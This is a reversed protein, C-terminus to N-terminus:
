WSEKPQFQFLSLKLKSLLFHFKIIKDTWSVVFSPCPFYNTSKWLWLSWAELVNNRKRKENSSQELESNNDEICWCEGHGGMSLTPPFLHLSGLPFLCLLHLYDLLENCNSTERFSPFFLPHKKGPFHWANSPLGFCVNRESGLPLHIFASM